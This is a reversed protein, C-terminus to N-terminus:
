ISKQTEQPDTRKKSKDGSNKTENQATELDSVRSELQIENMRAALNGMKSTNAGVRGELQNMRSNSINAGIRGELQSM